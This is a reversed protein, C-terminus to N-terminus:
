KAFNEDVERLGDHGLFLWKSEPALSFRDVIHNINILNVLVAKESDEVLEDSLYLWHTPNQSQIRFKHLGGAHLYEIHSDPLGKLIHSEIAEIKEEMIM